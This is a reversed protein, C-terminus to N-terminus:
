VVNIQRLPETLLGKQLMKKKSVPCSMRSNADMSPGLMSALELATKKPESNKLAAKHHQQKGRSAGTQM